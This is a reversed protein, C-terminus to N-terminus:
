KKDLGEHIQRLTEIYIKRKRKRDQFVSVMGGIYLGLLIAGIGIAIDVIM